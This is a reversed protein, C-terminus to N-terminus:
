YSGIALFRNSYLIRIICNLTRGLKLESKRDPGSGWGLEWERTFVSQDSWGPVHMGRHSSKYLEIEPLDKEKTRLKM